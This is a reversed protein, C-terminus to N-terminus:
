KAGNGAFLLDRDGAGRDEHEIVKPAKHGLLQLHTGCIPGSYGASTVVFLPQEKEASKGMCLPCKGTPFSRIQFM